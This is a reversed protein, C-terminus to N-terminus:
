SSLFCQEIESFPMPKSFLFGQAYDCNNRHLLKLQEENEIGEAVVKLGLQHGMAVIAEVIQRDAADEEIDRVFSRDIKLTDVPLKKLQGLSSYGTGFDDIAIHIGLARLQNLQNIAKQTDTMLSTETIELELADPPLQYKLLLAEVKSAFEPDMLQPASINAAIPVLKHNMSIRQRQQQCIMDLLQYGIPVIMGNREAEEIFHFPSLLGKEPHQWRVLAELKTVENEQLCIIPQYHIVLQHEQLAVRLEQELILRESVQQQMRANYFTYQNKGSNKSAYLALDANQLVEGSHGGDDPLITIGISTSIMLPRNDLVIEQHISEILKEAIQRADMPNNLQTLLIAYEDGGLRAVIDSQRVCQQIRESVAILLRDGADHGLSDNIRKFDDLDLYMLAAQGGNRQLQRVEHELQSSFLRRNVLGTLTDHFALNNLEQTKEAVIRSLREPERLIYGLLGAVVLGALASLMFGRVGSVPSKPPTRSLELKWSANPVAITTEVRYQEDLKASDAFTEPLKTEPSIRSLRYMYGKSALESLDTVAMLDELLILASAFGWFQEKGDKTVFVPNRGIVAVGGQILEFPGALTLKRERIALKAEDRRKDDILLRHGIAKENGALPHIYKIVANPALQLNSIGGISRIIEDAFPEFEPFMGGHQRVQNSLIYTSSLSRSLRREIASAQSNAIEQVLLKQEHQWISEYLSFAYQSVFSVALFVSLVILPRFKHIGM